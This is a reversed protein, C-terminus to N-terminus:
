GSVPENTRALYEPEPSRLLAEVDGAALWRAAQASIRRREGRFVVSRLRMAVALMRRAREAKARGHHKDLFRLHSRLQERYMEVPRLRTSGGGVHVFEAHPHYLVEWGFQRMRYALDVEDDYM